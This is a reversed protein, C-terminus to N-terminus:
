TTWRVSRGRRGLRWALQRAAESYGEATLQPGGDSILMTGHDASPRPSTNSSLASSWESRMARGASQFLEHVVAERLCGDIIPMLPM